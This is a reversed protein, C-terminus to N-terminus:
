LLEDDILGRYYLEERVLRRIIMSIPEGVNRGLVELAERHERPIKITTSVFGEQGFYHKRRKDKKDEENM